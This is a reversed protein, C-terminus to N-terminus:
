FRVWLLDGLGYVFTNWGTIKDYFRECFFVIGDYSSIITYTCYFCVLSTFMIFFGFNIANKSAASRIVSEKGDKVWAAALSVGALM